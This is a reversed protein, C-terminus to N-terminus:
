KTQCKTRGDYYHREYARQPLTTRRLGIRRLLGRWGHTESWWIGGAKLDLAETYAEGALMLSRVSEDLESM